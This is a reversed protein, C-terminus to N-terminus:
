LELDIIARVPSKVVKKTKQRAAVVGYHLAVAVGALETGGSSLLEASLRQHNQRERNRATTDM